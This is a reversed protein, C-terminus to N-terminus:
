VGLYNILERRVIKLKKLITNMEADAPAKLNAPYRLLTPSATWIVIDFNSVKVSVTCFNLLQISDYIACETQDNIYRKRPM